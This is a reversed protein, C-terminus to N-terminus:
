VKRRRVWGLIGLASGFLWVAAPVPVVQFTMDFAGPMGQAIGNGITFVAGPSTTSAGSLLAVTDFDYASISRIPRFSADDGGLTLSFALGPGWSTTSEDAFNDGFTYGGCANFGSGLGFTGENCSYATTGGASAAGTDITLDTIADGRIAPAMSSSGLNQAAGYTGTSSLIAGDWDWVATTAPSVSSTGDTIMTYLTGSGTTENASVFIVQIANAANAVMFLILSLVIKKM